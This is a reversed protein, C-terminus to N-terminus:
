FSLVGLLTWPPHRDGPKELNETKLGLHLYLPLGNQIHDIETINTISFNLQDFVLNM